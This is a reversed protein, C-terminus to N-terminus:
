IVAHLLSFVDLFRDTYRLYTIKVFIKYDWQKILISQKYRCTHRFIRNQRFIYNEVEKSIVHNASAAM